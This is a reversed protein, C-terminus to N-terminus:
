NHKGHRRLKYIIVFEGLFSFFLMNKPLHSYLIPNKASFVAYKTTKSSMASIYPSNRDLTGDFNKDLAKLDHVM